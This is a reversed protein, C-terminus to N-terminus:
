EALLTTKLRTVPIFSLQPFYYIASAEVQGDHLDFMGAQSDCFAIDFCCHNHFDDFTPCVFFRAIKMIPEVLVQTSACIVQKAYQSYNGIYQHDLDDRVM